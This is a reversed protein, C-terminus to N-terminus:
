REENKPRYGVACIEPSFHHEFPDGALWFIMRHVIQELLARLRAVVWGPKIPVVRAEVFGGLDMLQLISHSAFIRTHTLDHYRHYIGTINAANPTRCCFFGGPQLAEYIANIWQLLVADQLHELVHFCFIGSFERPHDRLFELGDGTHVEVGPLARKLTEIQAPSVDVGVPTIHPHYESLWRLLTGSGCGLDLVRAGSPLTRMLVGHTRELSRLTRRWVYRADNQKGGLVRAWHKDYVAYAEHRLDLDNKM